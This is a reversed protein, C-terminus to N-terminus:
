MWQSPQVRATWSKRALRLAVSPMRCLRKPATDQIRLSGAAAPAALGAPQPARAPRRAARDRAPRRRWPRARHRARHHPRPRRRRDRSQAVRRAPPVAQVRRRAPRGSHGPRRRRRHDRHHQRRPMAHVAVTKGYHVANGVINTLCRKFANPRVPVILEGDTELTVQTGNRAADQVVEELLATISTVTPRETGEGRAFALYGDVM